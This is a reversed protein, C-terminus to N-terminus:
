EPKSTDLQLTKKLRVIEEELKAVKEELLNKIHADSAAGIKKEVHMSIQAGFINGSVTGIIYPLFFAWNMNQTVLERFVLFWLSVSVFTAIFQFIIHNRNLSRNAISFGLSQAFALFFLTIIGVMNIHM